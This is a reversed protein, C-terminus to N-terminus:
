NREQERRRGGPPPWSQVPAFNKELIARVDPNGLVLVTIKEPDIFRRAVEAVDTAAVQKVANIYTALYDKPYGYLDVLLYQVVVDPPSVFRNAFSFMADRKATELEAASPPNQIIQRIVDKMLALTDAARDRKTSAIAVFLGAPTDEFVGGGVAYALGHKTRVTQMLRSTLGGMGLINNLVDVAAQDRPDRPRGIHGLRIIVQQMDKGALYVGHYAPSKDAPVASRDATTAIDNKTTWSSFTEEWGRPESAKATAIGLKVAQPFYRLRYFSLIDQRDLKTVDKPLPTRALPHTTGYVLKRFERRAVEAPDDDERVLRERLLQRERDLVEVDFRPATLMLRVLEVAKPATDPLCILDFRVYDRQVDVTLSAGLQDLQKDFDDPSLSGAGGARLCRATLEALGLKDAPDWIKGADVLVIFYFAHIERAEYTFIKIGNPLVGQSVKPVDFVFEGPQLQEPRAPFKLQGRRITLTTDGELAPPYASESQSCRAVMVEGIAHEPLMIMILLFGLVFALMDKHHRILIDLTPFVGSRVSLLAM